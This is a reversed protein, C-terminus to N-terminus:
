TTPLEEPESRLQQAHPVCDRHAHREGHATEQPVPVPLRRRKRPEGGHGGRAAAIRRGWGARQADRHEGRPGGRHRERHQRRRVRDSRRLDPGGHVACGRDEHAARVAAEGRVLPRERM